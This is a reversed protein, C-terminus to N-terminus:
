GFNLTNIYSCFFAANRSVLTSTFGENLMQKGGADIVIIKKGPDFTKLITTDNESVFKDVPLLRCYICFNDGQYEQRLYLIQDSLNSLVHGTYNIM